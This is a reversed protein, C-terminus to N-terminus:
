PEFPSVATRCKVSRFPMGTNTHLPCADAWSARVAPAMAKRFFDNRSESKSHANAITMSASARASGVTVPTFTFNNAACASDGAPRYCRRAACAKLEHLLPPLPHTLRPCSPLQRVTLPGEKFDIIRGTKGLYVTSIFSSFKYRVAANQEAAVKGGIWRAEHLPGVLAKSM